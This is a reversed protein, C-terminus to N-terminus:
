RRRGPDRPGRHAVLGRGFLVIVLTFVTAIMTLRSAIWAVNGVAIDRSGIPTAHMAHFVKSWLFGGMIPFTAEFAATQM